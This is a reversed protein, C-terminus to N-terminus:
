KNATPRIEQQLVGSAVDATLESNKAGLKNSLSSTSGIRASSIVWIIILLGLFIVYSSRDLVNAGVIAGNSVHNLSQSFYLFSERIGIAGPTLSVFLAFNAAGTYSMVQGIKLGPAVSNLEVWYLSFQLVAQIVTALILLSINELSIDLGRKTIHKNKSYLRVVLYSGGSVAVVGILTQWWSRVGGILLIISVIAYIM